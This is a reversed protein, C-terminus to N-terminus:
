RAFLQRNYQLIKEWESDYLNANQGHVPVAPLWVDPRVRALRSVSQLYASVDGGPGTVAGITQQSSPVSPRAPIRGSILVTKDAWRFVYAVPSTGRGALAIMSLGPLGLANEKVVDEAAVVVTRPPCRLRVTAVAEGAAVVQCGHERALAALGAETDASTLVLATVKQGKLGLSGLREGVFGALTDGGPADFLVLGNDTKVAYVASGAHEGLYFLGPLLRRPTGDLFDAGDAEYRALLREMEAIGGDLLEHWRREGLRPNQPKEDMHPHGPLVLDPAPLARLKRLSDLYDRANGRYLPPLYAAYTGLPGASAKSLSQVVDGSFLIRKRDRELLYCVSGPTHGPTGIVTFRADGFTLVEDGDLEVDIPTKHLSHPMHFTSFFAERPGGERLPGCDGRGAYIKAGTRARLRAAGLTHDGHGHTLLIARLRDVDLRLTTLQAIVGSADAELGTDILVLGDRTDVAYAVSPKLKGLLFVRNAVAVPEAALVDSVPHAPSTVDLWFGVWVIGILVVVLGAAIALRGLGRQWWPPLPAPSDESSM